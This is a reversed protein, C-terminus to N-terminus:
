GHGRMAFLQEFIKINKRTAGRHLELYRNASEGMLRVKRPDNILEQLSRSVSEATSEVRMLAGEEQLSNFSSDFNRQSAGAVLAMSWAAPELPNHGGHEVMTGGIVAINALGYLARLEGLRDCLVVPQLDSLALERSRLVYGLDAAESLRGIAKCREPHRPVLVLRLQNDGTHLQAFAEILIEDEGPHTSAAVITKQPDNLGLMRALMRARDRESPGLEFDAKLNGTVQVAKAGLNRFRSADRETQANVWSIGAFMERSLAGLKLYGRESKESMRGNILLSPLGRKVSVEAIWNPWLETELIILGCPDLQGLFRKVTGPLDYPAYCHTVADGFSREVQEAGAPTTTTVCISLEPYSALLQKVFPESAIVEGVSVAHLWLPPQLTKKQSAPFNYGFRQSINRRYGEHRTSLVCLRAVAVPALLYGLGSYLTRNLWNRMYTTPGSFGM